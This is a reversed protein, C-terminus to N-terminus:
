RRNNRDEEAQIAALAGGTPGKDQHTLDKAVPSMPVPTAAPVAAADAADHRANMQDVAKQLARKKIEAMKDQDDQELNYIDAM